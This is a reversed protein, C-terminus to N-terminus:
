SSKLKEILSTTSFGEVMSVCVVKGGYAEVVKKEPLNEPLYDGGKVHVSPQIKSLMAEPTQENFITVYDVSELGAIQLARTMESCIPRNSGKLTKVSSDSNIGVILVDGLKRAELLYSIHGLHLLDFCGNTTVIKKGSSKLERALQTLRSSSIIKEQLSRLAM